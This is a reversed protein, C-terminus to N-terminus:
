FGLASQRINLQWQRVGGWLNEVGETTSLDAQTETVTTGFAKIEEIADPLRTGCFVCHHRLREFGIRKFAVIRYRQVRRNSTGISEGHNRRRMLQKYSRGSLRMCV